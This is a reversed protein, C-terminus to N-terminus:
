MSQRPARAPPCVQWHAAPAGADEADHSRTLRALDADLAEAHKRREGLTAYRPDGALDAAELVECLRRWEADDAVAVSVWSGDSCPYCGHPCMDPHNNGDPGLQRGTLSQELLCDGIMSSLTEVASVDVFQGAGSLERHLLAVVAAYAAAAGVTSDGYRMSAGLPPGGPYGVLSALGALAAFCPAYGTQHGLPGDNGWMKISVSIIDPKIAKCNRCLGPGPAGHRGPASQQHRHRQQAILERLRAMGTPSKIDLDVSLIEPNISLFFPAHNVDTGGYARMEEPIAATEIKIVEAGLLALLKGAYPGAWVKTLEVVRM